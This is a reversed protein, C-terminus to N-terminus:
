LEGREEAPGKFLFPSAARDLTLRDGPAIARSARVAVFHDSRGKKEATRFDAAVQVSALAADPFFSMDVNPADGRANDDGVYIAGTGMMFFSFEDDLPALFRELLTGEYARTTLVLGPDVEVIDGVAYARTAVAVWEHVDVDSGGCGPLAGDPFKLPAADDLEGDEPLRLGRKMELRHPKKMEIGRTTFWTPGYNVFIEEFKSIPAHVPRFGVDKPGEALPSNRREKKTAIEVIGHPKPSHNYMMMLGFHLSDHTENFGYLYGDLGPAPSPVAISPSIELPPPRKGESDLGFKDLQPYDRGAYVGFGHDSPALLLPCLLAATAM